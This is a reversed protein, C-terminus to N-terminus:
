EDEKKENLDFDQKIGAESNYMEVGVKNGDIETIRVNLGWYHRKDQNQDYQHRVNIQEKKLKQVGEEGKKQVYLEAWINWAIGGGDENWLHEEWKAAAIRYEENEKYDVAEVNSNSHTGWTACSRPKLYGEIGPMKGKVEEIKKELENTM